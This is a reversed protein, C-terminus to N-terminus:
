HLSHVVPLSPLARYEECKWLKKNPTASHHLRHFSSDACLESSPELKSKMTVSQFRWTTHTILHQKNSKCYSTNHCWVTLRTILHSYLSSLIIWISSILVSTTSLVYPMFSFIPFQCLIYDSHSHFQCLNIKHNCKKKKKTPQTAYDTYRSAVPQITRHDFGPLPCSKECRDLGARPGVWGGTCHTGPREWPYLTAPTHCQGM